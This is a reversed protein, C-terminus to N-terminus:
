IGGDQEPEDAAPESCSSSDDALKEASAATAAADVEGEATFGVDHAETGTSPSEEEHLEQLDQGAQSTSGTPTAFGSTNHSEEAEIRDAGGLALDEAGSETSGQLDKTGSRASSIRPAEDDPADAQVEAAEVDTAAAGEDDASSPLEQKASAQQSEAPAEHHSEEEPEEPVEQEERVDDEERADEQPEEGLEQEGDAAQPAFPPSAPSVGEQAASSSQSDSESDSSEVSRCAETRTDGMRDAADQSRNPLPSPKEAPVPSPSAAPRGPDRDARCHMDLQLRPLEPRSVSLALQKKLESCRIRWEELEQGMRGSLEEAQVKARDSTRSLLEQDRLKATLQGAEIAHDHRERQLLARLEDCTSRLDELEVEGNEGSGRQLLQMSGEESFLSNADLNEEAAVKAQLVAPATWLMLMATYYVAAIGVAMRQLHSLEGAGLVLGALTCSFALFSCQLLPVALEREFADFVNDARQLRCCPCAVALWVIFSITRLWIQAAIVSAAFPLMLLGGIIKLPGQLVAERAGWGTCLWQVLHGPLSRRPELAALGAACYTVFILIIFCTLVMTEEGILFLMRLALWLAAGSVVFCIRGLYLKTGTPGGALELLVRRSVLARHLTRSRGSGQRSLMDYVGCFLFAIAHYLLVALPLYRGSDIGELLPSSAALDVLQAVLVGVLVCDWVAARILAAYLQPIKPVLKTYVIEIGLAFTATMSFVFMRRHWIEVPSPAGVEATGNRAALFITMLSGEDAVGYSSPGAMPM